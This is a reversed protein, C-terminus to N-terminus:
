RYRYRPLYGLRHVYLIYCAFSEGRGKIGVERSMVLKLGVAIERVYFTYAHEIEM